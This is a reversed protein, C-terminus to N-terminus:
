GAIAVGALPDSSSLTTGPVAAIVEANEVGEPTEIRAVIYTERNADDFYTTNPEWAEIGYDSDLGAVDVGRSGLSRYEVAEVVQQAYTTKSFFPIM